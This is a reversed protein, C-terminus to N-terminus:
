DKGDDVRRNWSEIAADRSHTLGSTSCCKGCVATWSWQRGETDIKGEPDYSLIINVGGCFPCPKLESM